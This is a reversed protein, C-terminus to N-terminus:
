DKRKEEVVAKKKRNDPMFTISFVISTNGVTLAAM